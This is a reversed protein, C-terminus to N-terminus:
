IIRQLLKIQKDHKHLESSHTSEVLKIAKIDAKVEVMDDMLTRINGPVSAMASQGELIAKFKDDVDELLVGYNDAM